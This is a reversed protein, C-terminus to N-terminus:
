TFQSYEIWHFITMTVLSSGYWVLALRNRYSDRVSARAAWTGSVEVKGRGCEALESGQTDTAKM